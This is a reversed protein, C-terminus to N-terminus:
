RQLTLHISSISKEALGLGRTLPGWYSSCKSSHIIEQHSLGSFIVALCGSLKVDKDKRHHVLSQQKDPGHCFSCNM